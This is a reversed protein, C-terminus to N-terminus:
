DMNADNTRFYQGPHRLNKALYRLDIYEPVNAGAKLDWCM